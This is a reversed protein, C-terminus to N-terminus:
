WCSHKGQDCGADFATLHPDSRRQLDVQAGRVPEGLYDGPGSLRPRADNDYDVEGVDHGAIDPGDPDQELCELLDLRVAKVQLDAM